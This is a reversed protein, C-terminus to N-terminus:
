TFEPASATCSHFVFSGSPGRQQHHTWEGMPQPESSTNAGVQGGFEYRDRNKDIGKALSGNWNGNEAVGGGTVRCGSYECSVWPHSGSSFSPATVTNNEKNTSNEEVVTSCSALGLILFLILPVLTLNRFHRM